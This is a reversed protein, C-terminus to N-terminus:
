FFFFFGRFFELEFSIGTSRTMETLQDVNQPLIKICTCFNIQYMYRNYIFLEMWNILCKNDVDDSVLLMSERSERESGTGILWEAQYIKLVASLTQVSSIFTLKQLDALVLTDMQLPGYFFM